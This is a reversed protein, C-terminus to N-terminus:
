LVLRAKKFAKSFNYEVLPMNEKSTKIMDIELTDTDIYLEIEGITVSVRVKYYDGWLSISKLVVWRTICSDTLDKCNLTLREDNNEIVISDNFTIRTHGVANMENKFHFKKNNFYGEKEESIRRIPIGGCWNDSENCTVPDVFYVENGRECLYYYKDIQKDSRPVGVIEIGDNDATKYEVVNLNKKDVRLCVTEPTIFMNYGVKIFIDWFETSDVMGLFHPTASYKKDDVLVDLKARKSEIALIGRDKHIVTLKGSNGFDIYFGDTIKKYQIEGKLLSCNNLRKPKIGGRLEIYQPKLTESDVAYYFGRGVTDFDELSMSKLTFIM